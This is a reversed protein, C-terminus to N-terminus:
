ATAVKKSIFGFLKQRNPGAYTNLFIVLVMVFILVAITWIGKNDKAPLINM